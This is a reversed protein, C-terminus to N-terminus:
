QSLVILRHCHGRAVEATLDACGNAVVIVEFWGYDQNELTELTARIYKQENHAPIIVSIMRAARAPKKDKSKGRDGGLVKKKKVFFPIPTEALVSKFEM